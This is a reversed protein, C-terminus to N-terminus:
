RDNNKDKSTDANLSLLEQEAKEIIDPDVGLISAIRLAEQPVSGSTDEILSYDIFDNINNKTVNATTHNEIFGKVRLKRCQTNMGSYHTTIISQVKNQNLISAVASVIARGEDPNTTRALEDILILMKKESKVAQMMQDIKMMESAFSSLGNLESQEDGMSIMIGDVLNIHAKEAPIFFGFQFLYQCLAVTKLVVTKGAMNAGTIMCASQELAIDIAQYQRAQGKLVDKLQPNFLANYLTNQKSILPKVFGYSKAQLAKAILIDLHAILDLALLILDSKEFLHMSLTGRIHDETETAQSRLIEIQMMLEEDPNDTQLALENKKQKLDKRLAALENSYADYIYFSPIRNGEPDLLGIERSLDPLQVLNIGQQQLIKRIDDELLMFSKLEFLEIEDLIRHNLVNNITGNIDRIQMLKVQIRTISEATDSNNLLQCMQDVLDLEKQLLNADLFFDSNLLYRKGLGSQLELKDIM